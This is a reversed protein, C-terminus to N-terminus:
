VDSVGLSLMLSEKNSVPGTKPRGLDKRSGKKVKIEIMSPGERCAKNFAIQIEDKTQVSFVSQYGCAVAVNKLDVDFASTPQGGVSDHAGNNIVVHILNFVAGTGITSLSGMHMLLSGDGDICIIKRSPQAIALGYAICSVHGMAGITLFDNKHGLQHKSRIEYLERSAMGTTSIFLDDRSALNVISSIAGERNLPFNTETRSMLTYNNFAGKSVLLAVPRKEEGMKRTASSILSDINRTSATLRFYPIELVNLLNEMIRGQKIHQPEDKLGPEGRWGILLLMPVSYVEPDALSLLPNIANGLGSNQMYVLSPKGTGLYHGVALGIANGENAAIIHKKECTNDSIYACFDKLLSDPVGTFFGIGEERLLDYLTSPSLM